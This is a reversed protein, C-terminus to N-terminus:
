SIGLAYNHLLLGFINYRLILPVVLGIHFFLWPFATDKGPEVSGILSNNPESWSKVAWAKGRGRMQGKIALMEDM